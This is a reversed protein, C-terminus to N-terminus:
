SQQHKRNIRYVISIVSALAAVGIVACAISAGILSITSAITM